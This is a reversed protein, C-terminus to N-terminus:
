SKFDLRAEIKRKVDDAIDWWVEKPVVTGPPSVERKTDTIMRSYFRLAEIVFVQSLAGYNSREMIERIFDVNSSLKGNDM